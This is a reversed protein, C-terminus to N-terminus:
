WTQLKKKKFLWLVTNNNNSPCFNHASQHTHEYSKRKFYLYCLTIMVKLWVTILLSIMRASSIHIYNQLFFTIFLCILWSTVNEKKFLWFVTNHNNSLFFNHASQHIHEYSKRKFYLYCLTIMIKLMVTILLSIM